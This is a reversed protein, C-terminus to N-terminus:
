YNYHSKRGFTPRGRGEEGPLVAKAQWFVARGEQHLGNYAAMAESLHM